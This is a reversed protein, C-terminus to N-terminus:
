TQVGSSIAGEDIHIQIHPRIAKGTARMVVAVQAVVSARIFRLRNKIRNNLFFSKENPLLRHLRTIYGTVVAPQEM